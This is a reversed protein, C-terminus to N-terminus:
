FRRPPGNPEDSQPGAPPAGCGPLTLFGTKGAIYSLILIFVLWGLGVWVSLLMAALGAAVLILRFGIRLVRRLTLPQTGPLPRLWQGILLVLTFMTLFIAAKEMEVSYVADADGRNGPQPSFGNFRCSITSYPRHRVILRGDVFTQFSQRVAQFKHLEFHLRDAGLLFPQVRAFAFARSANSAPM